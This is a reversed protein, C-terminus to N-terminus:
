LHLRPSGDEFFVRHWIELNLLRWIRDSHNRVSSKHEGLIDEVAEPRFLGRNLSRSSVLIDEVVGFLAGKLWLEWPTPFGKKKQHIIRNPLLDAVAHKLVFKGSLGRLSYAAPVTLAFEVLEHDLFPVRSEVSAAM